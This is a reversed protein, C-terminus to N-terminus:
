NIKNKVLERKLAQKSEYDAKALAIRVSSPRDNIAKHIIWALLLLFHELGVFLILKLETSMGETLEKVQPSLYLIACNSMISICALAEFALHWAGINKQRRAFPRRFTKCLKYADLRIEFFNNFLAWFAAAPTISSFLSVYGFQIYLELYDDYTNYEDKASERLNQKIRPDNEELQLINLDDYNSQISKTDNKDDNELQKYVDGCCFWLIYKQKFKPVLFEQANQVFQLVIMQTLLQNQLNKMDQKIFAIYFLSFFNNVFELVILKNVRHREFQSQTRHNEMVTLYTAFRDYFVTLVAVLISQIISPIMTIYSELGYQLIFYDELYITFLTLFIAGITCLVIVPVSVFYVQIQTKYLPYQPTMKGTIPDRGIKGYYEPRPLEVNTLSLTGWKYAMVSQKRKWVELFVTMWIVYSCFFFPSSEGDGFTYQLLGLFTPIMLSITYYEVFSFYFAIGDGFYKRIKEIPQRKFLHRLNWWETGLRKMFEKNHLSYMNVILEEQIAAHIISQGHYLSVAACGPLFRENERAKINELAHKIVFQKDAPTLIDDMSMGDFIFDDLSGINFSRLGNKTPKTFGIEDAIELLRLKTASIHIILGREDSLCPESRIILQAGGDSKKKRIKDIIWYLADRNISKDFEIVMYSEFSAFNEDDESQTASHDAQSPRRKHLLNDDPFLFESNSDRRQQLKEQEMFNLLNIQSKRQEMSPITSKISNLM